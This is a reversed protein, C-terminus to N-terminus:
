GTVRMILTVLGIVNLHDPKKKKHKGGENETLTVSSDMM